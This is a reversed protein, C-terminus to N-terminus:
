AAKEQQKLELAAARAERQAIGVKAQFIIEAAVEMAQEPDLHVLMNGRGCGNHLMLYLGYGWEHQQITLGREGTEFVAIHADAKFHRKM